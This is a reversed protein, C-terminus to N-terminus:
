NSKGIISVGIGPLIEKWYFSEFGAELYIEKLESYDYLRRFAPNAAKHLDISMGNTLNANPEILIAMGKDDLANFHTKAMEPTNEFYGISLQCFVIDFAGKWADDIDLVDRQYFGVNKIREHKANRCALRIMEESLDTAIVEGSSVMRALRIVEYGPGCACELVRANTHILPTILKFVEQLIPAKFPHAAMEYEEASMDFWRMREYGEPNQDLLDLVIGNATLRETKYSVDIAEPFSGHEELDLQQNRSLTLMTPYVHKGWDQLQSTFIPGWVDRHKDFDLKM